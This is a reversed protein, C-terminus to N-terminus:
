EDISPYRYRFLTLISINILNEFLAIAIIAIKLLIKASAIFSKVSNRLLKPM